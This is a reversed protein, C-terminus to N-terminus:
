TWGWLHTQYTSTIIKKQIQSIFATGNSCIAGWVMIGSHHRVDADFLINKWKKRGYASKDMMEACNGSRKMVSYWGSGTFQSMVGLCPNNWWNLKAALFNNIYWNLILVDCIDWLIHMDLKVENANWTNSIYGWIYFPVKHFKWDDLKLFKTEFFFTGM